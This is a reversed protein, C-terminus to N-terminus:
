GNAGKGRRRKLKCECLFSIAMLAIGGITYPLTGAGGTEPMRPRRRNVITPNDAMDWSETTGDEHTVTVTLADYAVTVAYQDTNEFYCSPTEVESLEYKHGSPINTFTVRGDKGSTATYDNISM